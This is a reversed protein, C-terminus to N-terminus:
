RRMRFRLAAEGDELVTAEQVEPTFGPATVRVRYSGPALRYLVIGDAGASVERMLEPRGEIAVTASLPTRNEDFVRVELFGDRLQRVLQFAHTVTQGPTVELPVAAVANYTPHTVKIRYAGAVLGEVVAVGAADTRGRSGEDIIIDADAVATGNSDAVVIRLAGTQPVPKMRVDLISIRGRVETQLRQGAMLPASVTVEVPGTALDAFVYSGDDGTRTEQEIGLLRVLAGAVPEGAGDTVRGTLRSGAVPAAAPATAAVPAPPLVVPATAPAPAPLPAAIPAPLAPQPQEALPTAMPAVPSRDEFVAWRVAALVDYAPQAPIGPATAMTLNINGALHLELASWPRVRVGPTLRMPAASFGPAGEGVPTEGSWELSYDLNRTEWNASVGYLFQNYDTQGWAFREFGTPQGSAFNITRDYMYGALGHLALPGLRVTHLWQGAYSATDGYGSQGPIGTYLLVEGRLATTYAAGVRYGAKAALAADGYSELTQPRGMSHGASQGRMGAGLEVGWPGQTNWGPTYMVGLGHQLRTTSDNDQLLGSQQFYSGWGTVAWGTRGLEAGSVNVGGTGTGDLRLPADAGSHGPQVLGGVLTLTLVTRRLM